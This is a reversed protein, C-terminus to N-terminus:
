LGTSGLCGKDRHTRPLKGVETIRAYVIKECILQAIRHGRKFNFATHSHNFLILKISGRFDADIVGGLIDIQHRAALGSRAAIRGYTGHPLQIGRQIDLVISEQPPITSDIPSYLDIGASIESARTPLIAM